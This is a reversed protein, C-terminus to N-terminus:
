ISTMKWVAEWINLHGQGLEKIEDPSETDYVMATRWAQERTNGEVSPMWSPCTRPPAIPAGGPKDAGRGVARILMKNTLPSWVVYEAARSDLGQIPKVHTIKDICLFYPHFVGQEVRDSIFALSRGDCSWHPNQDNKPGDTIIDFQGTAIDALCIRTQPSGQLSNWISGTVAVKRSDPSVEPDAAHSIKGFAPGHLKNIHNVLDHWLDTNRLDRGTNIPVSSQM